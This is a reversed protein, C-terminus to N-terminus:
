SIEMHQESIFTFVDEILEMSLESKLEPSINKLIFDIVSQHEPIKGNQIRMSYLIIAQSIAIVTKERKSISMNDLVLPKLKLRHIATIKHQTPAM